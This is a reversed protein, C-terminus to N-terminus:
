SWDPYLEEEEHKQKRKYEAINYAIYSFANYVALMIDIFIFAWWLMTFSAMQYYVNDVVAGTPDFGFVSLASFGFMVIVCIIMNIGILLSSAIIAEKSKDMFMLYVISFLLMFYIIMLLQHYEMIMM